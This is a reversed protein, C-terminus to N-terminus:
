HNSKPFRLLNFKLIGDYKAGMLKTFASHQRFQSIFLLFWVARWQNQLDPEPSQFLIKLGGVCWRPLSRYYQLYLMGEVTFQVNPVHPVGGRIGISQNDYITMTKGVLHRRQPINLVNPGIGKEELDLGEVRGGLAQPNSWFFMSLKHNSTIWWGQSTGGRQAGSLLWALHSCSQRRPWPSFTILVTSIMMAFMHLIILTDHNNDLM